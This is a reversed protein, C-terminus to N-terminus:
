TLKTPSNKSKNKRCQHKFGNHNVKLFSFMLRRQISSRTLHVLRKQTIFRYVVHLYLPVLIRMTETNSKQNHIADFNQFWFRLPALYVLKRHMYSRIMSKMIAKKKKLIICSWNIDEIVEDFCFSRLQFRSGLRDYIAKYCGHCIWFFIWFVIKTRVRNCPSFVHLRLLYEHNPLWKTLYVVMKSAQVLHAVVRQWNNKIMLIFKRQFEGM